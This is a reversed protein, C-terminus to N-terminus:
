NASSRVKGDGSKFRDLVAIVERDDLQHFDAYFYGIAGFDARVELCIIEDAEGRLAKIEAAKQPDDSQYQPGLYTIGPYKKLQAEFGSTRADQAASGPPQTIVLVPGKGGLLANMEEAALRGGEANDTLIQTEVFSPDDVTQDVTTM